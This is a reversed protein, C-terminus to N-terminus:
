KVPRGKANGDYADRFSFLGNFLAPPPDRRGGRTKILVLRRIFIGRSARSCLRASYSSSAPVAVHHRTLQSRGYAFSNRTISRECSVFFNNRTAPFFADPRWRDEPLIKRFSTDSLSLSLSLSLALSLSLSRSYDVLDPFFLVIRNTRSRLFYLTRKSDFISTNLVSENLAIRPIKPSRGELM